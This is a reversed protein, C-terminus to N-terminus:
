VFFGINLSSDNTDIERPKGQHHDFVLYFGAFKGGVEAVLSYNFGEHLAAKWTLVVADYIEEFPVGYGSHMMLDDVTEFGGHHKLENVM